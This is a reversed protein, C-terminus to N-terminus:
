PQFMLKFEEEQKINLMYYFQSIGNLDTVNWWIAEWKGRLDRVLKEKEVEFLPRSITTPQTLEEGLFTFM